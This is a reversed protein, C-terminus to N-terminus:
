NGPYTVYFRLATGANVGEPFRGGVLSTAEGNTPPTLDLLARSMGGGNGQTLHIATAPYTSVLTYPPRVFAVNIYATSASLTATALVELTLSVLGGPSRYAGTAALIEWGARPGAVDAGSAKTPSSPAAVISIRSGEHRVVVREGVRLAGVENSAARPTATEDSELVVTPAAGVSAVSGWETWPVPRLGQVRGVTRALLDLSDKLTVAM